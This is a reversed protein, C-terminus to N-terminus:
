KRQSYKDKICDLTTPLQKTKGDGWYATVTFETGSVNLSVLVKRSKRSDYIPLDNVTIMGVEYCEKEDTCFTKSHCSGIIRINCNEQTISTLPFFL